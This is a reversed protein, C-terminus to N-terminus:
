RGSGPGSGNLRFAFRARAALDDTRLSEVFVVVLTGEVYHLLTRGGLNRLRM